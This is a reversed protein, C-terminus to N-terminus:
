KILVMRRVVSYVIRNGNRVEFQYYYIGSSLNKNEANFAVSYNGKDKIGHILTEVEQGLINFVRLSVFSPEKISYSIITVPNFPNPYNQELSYDFDINQINGFPNDEPACPDSYGM